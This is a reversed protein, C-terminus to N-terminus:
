DASLGLDALNSIHFTAQLKRSGDQMMRVRVSQRTVNVQVKHDILQAVVPGLEVYQPDDDWMQCAYTTGRATAIEFALFHYKDEQEDMISRASIVVGTLTSEDVPVGLDEVATIRLRLFREQVEQEGRKATRENASYTAVAVRVKHHLLQEGSAVLTQYLPHNDWVQCALKDGRSTVVDLVYFHFSEDKSALPRASTVLGVLQYMGTEGQTYSPRIMVFLGACVDVLSLDVVRSV